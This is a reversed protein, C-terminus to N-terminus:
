RSEGKDFGGSVRANRVLLVFASGPSCRTKELKQVAYAEGRRGLLM